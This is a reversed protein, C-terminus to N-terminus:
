RKSPKTRHISTSKSLRNLIPQHQPAVAVVKAVAIAAVRVAVVPPVKVVAIQNVMEDVQIYVAPVDVQDAIAHLVAEAVVVVAVAVKVERAVASLIM